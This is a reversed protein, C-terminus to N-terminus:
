FIVAKLYNDILIPKPLLNVEELNFIELNYATKWANLAAQDKLKLETFSAQINQHTLQHRYAVPPEQVRIGGHCFSLSEPTKPSSLKENESTEFVLFDYLGQWIDKAGRRKMLLRNEFRIPFYHLYRNRQQKKKQKVPFHQVADNQYAFCSLRLVCRQCPPSKPLCQLAGFEMIAQNYTESDSVPMLSKSLEKFKKRSAAVAIDLDVGFLRALVRFVNGDVVPEPLGFAFSAVASATYDGIGPLRKLEQYSSPFKGQHKDVIMRACRHLNRARSYYGLGQWLRLVSQESADALQKVSPYQEIFRYYYPLGQAVRTQQLIIESIWIRYPDNTYRWPLSRSHNKYWRLLDKTIPHIPYKILM